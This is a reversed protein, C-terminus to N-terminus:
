DTYPECKTYLWGSITSFITYYGKFYNEPTSRDWKEVPPVDYGLENVIFDITEEKTADTTIDLVKYSDGYPFYQGSHAIKVTFTNGKYNHTGEIKM